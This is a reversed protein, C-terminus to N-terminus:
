PIIATSPPGDPPAPTEDDLIARVTQALEQKRYPKSLLRINRLSLEEREVRSEPFGSTLLVKLNPHRMLAERALDRGDMGPMVVDTFLLRVSPEKALIDLADAADGVQIVRYGLDGLLKAVVRRLNANDEALVITGGRHPPAPAAAAATVVAAPSDSQARPLYLRLTTGQGLESYVNVHGGSQKLFGFVMSLGLGTGKGQEKTTFFPEFARSLVTAPMGVGTDSVEIVLYDGPTVGAHQAAYHEDLHGNRTVITLQGGKPMADRANTALNTIAAELQIPDIVTPWLDPALEMTMVIQEGLTRSLLKVLNAVLENIQVLQPRLPQRRAFALLRRILDAGRLAAELAEDRLEAAEAADKPGERLLDLNGIIIGLLNNFDHAMGGTLQGMAELQQSRRLREEAAIRETMDRGIFFHQQEHSSWVGTWALPVIRGDRHVYRCQFNRMLHGKRALRMEHRTSELDEAYLFEAASRGIMEDPRYGLIALSSPSVRLFNGQRDVVLILDLSTEFIRQNIARAIGLVHDSAMAARTADRETTVDRCMVTWGGPRPSVRLELWRRLMGSYGSLAVPERHRQAALYCAHFPSETDSGLVDLVSADILAAPTSGSIQAAAANAYVIRGTDDTAFVADPLGALVERCLPEAAIAAAPDANPEVPRDNM